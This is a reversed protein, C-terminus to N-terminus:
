SIQCIECKWKIISWQTIYYHHHHQYYRAAITTTTSPDYLSRRRVPTQRGRCRRDNSELPFALTSSLCYMVMSRTLITLVVWEYHSVKTEYLLRISTYLWPAAASCYRSYCNSSCYFQVELRLMKGWTNCLTPTKNAFFQLRTKLFNNTVRRMKIWSQVM